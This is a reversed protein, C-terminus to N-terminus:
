SAGAIRAAIEPPVMWFGPAGKCPIPEMLRRVNALRWMFRGPEYNGFEYEHGDPTNDATIRQCDTLEAVCLIKGRTRGFDAPGRIGCRGLASNFPEGNCLDMCDSPMAKTAHIAVLGRFGIGWSRTEWRKLEYAVLTAWPETLSLGRLPQSARTPEKPTSLQTAQVM